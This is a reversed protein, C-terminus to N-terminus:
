STFGNMDQWRQVKMFFQGVQNMQRLSLYQSVKGLMPFDCFTHCKKFDHKLETANCLRLSVSPAKGSLTWSPLGFLARRRLKRHDIKHNTNLIIFMLFSLPFHWFQNSKAKKHQKHKYCNDSKHRSKYFGHPTLTTCISYINLITQQVFPNKKLLLFDLLGWLIDSVCKKGTRGKDWKEWRGWDFKSVHKKPILIQRNRINNCGALAPYTSYCQIMLQLSGRHWNQTFVTILLGPTFIGSTNIYIIDKFFNVHADLLEGKWFWLLLLLWSLILHHLMHFFVSLPFEALLCQHPLQRPFDSLDSDTLPFVSWVCVFVFIQCETPKKNPEACM